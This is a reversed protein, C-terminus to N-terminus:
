PYQCQVDARVQIVAYGKNEWDRPQGRSPTKESFYVPLSFRRSLIGVGRIHDSHEHSVIMADIDRPNIDHAQLRREIEVGSLGADVLLTTTGDSIYIANGKSGSALMCVSLKDHNNTPARM